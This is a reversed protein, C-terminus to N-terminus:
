AKELENRDPRSNLNLGLFRKVVMFGQSFDPGDPQVFFRYVSRNGLRFDFFSGGRVAQVERDPYYTSTWHWVNGIGQVVGFPSAGEVKRYVEIPAVDRSWGVEEVNTLLPTPPNNGWPYDRGDTGRVAKEWEEVTPLQGGVWSCFASAGFFNVYTVPHDGFGEECAYVGQENRTIRCQDAPSKGQIDIWHHGGETRNGVANLFECFQANTIAFRTIYYTDTEIERASAGVGFIFPGREVEVYELDIESNPLRERFIQTGADDFQLARISVTESDNNASQLQSLSALRVRLDKVHAAYSQVQKELKSARDHLFERDRTLKEYFLTNDVSAKPYVVVLDSKDKAQFM